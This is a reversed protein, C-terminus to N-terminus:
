NTSYGGGLAAILQASATLREARVDLATQEASLASTQAQVVSLYDVLGARYQNTVQRLTERAASLARDRAQIQELMTNFARALPAAADFRGPRVRLGLEGTEAVRDAAEVLERLPQSVFRRWLLLM